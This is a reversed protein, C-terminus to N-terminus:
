WAPNDSKNIKFQKARWKTSHGSSDTAFFKLSHLFHFLIGFNASKFAAFGFKEKHEHHQTKSSAQKIFAL